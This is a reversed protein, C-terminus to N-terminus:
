FRFPLRNRVQIGTLDMDVDYAVIEVGAAVAKRLERGYEPDIEDAPRVADADMRQVVYFMLCRHGEAVLKQLEVLHNKGRATVADPFAAVRNEM